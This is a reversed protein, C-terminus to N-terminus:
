KESKIEQKPRSALFEFIVGVLFIVIIGFLRVLLQYPNPRLIQEFFNSMGFVYADVMALFIWYWSSFIILIVTM